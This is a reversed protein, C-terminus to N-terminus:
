QGIALTQPSQPAELAAQAAKKCAIKRCQGTKLERCQLCYVKKAWPCPSVGCACCLACAAWAKMAVEKAAQAASKKEIRAIKNSEIRERDEEAALRKRKKTEIM